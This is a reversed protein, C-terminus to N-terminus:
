GSPTIIARRLSLSNYTIMDDIVSWPTARQGVAIEDRLAVLAPDADLAQHLRLIFDFRPEFIALISREETNLTIM